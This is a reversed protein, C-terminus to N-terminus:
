SHRSTTGADLGVAMADDRVVQQAVAEGFAGGVPVGRDGSLGAQEPVEEVGKADVPHTQHRVVDAAGDGQAEGEGM